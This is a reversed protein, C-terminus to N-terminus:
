GAAVPIRTRHSPPATVRILDGTLHHRAAGTITLEAYSGEAV